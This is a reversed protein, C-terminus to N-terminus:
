QERKNLILSKDDHNYLLPITQYQLGNKPRRIKESKIYPHKNDVNGNKTPYGFKGVFCAFQEVMDEAYFKNDEKRLQAFVITLGGHDTLQEAINQYISDLKFFESNPARLWDIIRIENDSFKVATPNSTQHFEFDGEKLGRALAIEGAGSDSETSILRPTIGQKVFQEIINVAIHSKGQGTKSGIVILSGNNFTAYDELYPMSFAYPKVLSVFDTRWVVDEVFRYVNTKIKYIKGEDCLFRLSTLLDKKEYGLCEKLDNLSSEQVIKMHSLIGENIVNIDAQHYKEISKCMLKMSKTNMPDDLLHKNAINLAQETQKVTMFKRFIGGVQTFKTNCCGDLGKMLNDDLGDKNLVIEKQEEKKGRNNTSNFIFDKLTDDIEKIETGTITRPYGGVISPEIVAQGGDSQIDIHIDKYDFACKVIDTNNRYFLHAGGFTDQVVTEFDFINWSKVIELKENKIRIAEEIETQSANGKYIKKKLDSPVLDLDIILTNSMKGGKVGINLGNDLYTKWEKIDKHSKNQWNEEIWSEKSNKEVPVLDWGWEIFQEFLQETRDNTKISFEDILFKAIDEDPIDDNNDFDLKRSLTFIDGLKGCEPSFCHVQKTEPPFINASIEKCNPCTFMKGKITFDPIRNHLYDMIYNQIQKKTLKNM